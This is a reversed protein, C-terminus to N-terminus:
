SVVRRVSRKKRSSPPSKSFSLLSLGTEPDFRRHLKVGKAEVIALEGTVGIACGPMVHGGFVQGSKNSVTMHAHALVNGEKISINGLCSVIELPQNMEITEYTGEKFFGLKATKLTGILMFFGASVRANKAVQTITELVDEGESFRAFITRGTKAEAYEM